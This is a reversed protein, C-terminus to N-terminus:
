LLMKLQLLLLELLLLLLLLLIVSLTILLLLLLLLALEGDEEDKQDDGLERRSFTIVKVEELKLGGTEDDEELFVFVNTNEEALKLPDEELVAKM